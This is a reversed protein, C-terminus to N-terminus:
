RCNAYNLYMNSKFDDSDEEIKTKETISKIIEDLENASLMLYNLMKEKECENAATDCIINVLGLIRALPARVLHSQVWSIERLKENQAEIAKIYNLQETVDTAITVKADKGKYDIFNSQIDVHIIDGNKKLHKHIGLNGKKYEKSDSLLGAEFVAIEEPPRIARTTMLFIEQRTYGYQKIFAKNVDLFKLSELEFVYMPQPSLHFLESYQKESIELAVTSKKRESSYVISKYLMAPTLDDKLLYDTIGEALSRVSFSIDTYGTLVIIPTNFSLPVIERILPLGTKDPLSLDLLIADFQPACQSLIEQAAAFSKAQVLVFTDVQEALFEKVLVFDGPNDEVVLINYIKSSASMIKDTLM